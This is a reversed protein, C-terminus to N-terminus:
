LDVAVKTAVAIQYLIQTLSTALQLNKTPVKPMVLIEDGPQLAVDDANRVAGNQRVVLIHDDDGRQTLGGAAELYHGLGAGTQFVMAQPVIVEGSILVSDSAEPLTVVDGDQLRIDAIGQDSAVVLRGSPELERARAVFTQILEAERVRIQAEEDTASSAGLYTTELRRLSDELAQKQQLAVSERRISVNGSASLNRQVAVADLLEGLRADIPLAFRSPGMFSGELTVVITDVQHDASFIVEDGPRIQRGMFEALTVYTAMPGTARQGRLLAHSVGSKLRALTVLESGSLQNTLLEYRYAREVDGTVAISPGREEVVITDGDRLQPRAISGDLLFRYLDFSALHQGQRMLKVRRYSGLANDIGGAQDLFYLISDSPTGAYRGPSHVYGTVYVGVPQVGQLNTYVQVNEPYINQIAARVRADLEGHSLGQVALPGISPLFINGQADVPVVRDFEVAGWARLTVQDGPKIRYDRNLGDAMTGRFGGAFLNDGFPPLLDVSPTTSSTPSSAVPGYHDNHWNTRPRDDIAEVAEQRQADPLIDNPLVLSQAMAAVPLVILWALMILSM